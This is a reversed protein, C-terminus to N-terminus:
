RPPVRLFFDSSEAIEVTGNAMTCALVHGGADRDKTLFHFHYGPVNVGKMYDPFRFGVLTGKVDKLEFVAQRELVKMLGVYPKQQRPVSRVKIYRFEGDVRVASFRDKSGVIRDIADELAKMEVANSIASKKSANFFTVVAFPTKESNEVLNVKGDFGVRYFRGDLAVMEGDLGNLTGIGFDGKERLEGFTTPGDYEGQMLAQLPSIQFVLGADSGSYTTEAVSWFLLVATL